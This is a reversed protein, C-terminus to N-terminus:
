MASKLREYCALVNGSAFVKTQLLKLTHRDPASAFLTKGKGLIVPNTIFRYEDILGLRTLQAVIMGSGFIAMDKGPLLKMKAIEEADISGRMTTNNWEPKEVTKSFVIKALANMKGAVTPDDKLADPKPWYGAMLDYTVRGFILTDVTDLFRIAVENFEGDVVHWDIEGNAGAFFGDVTLMEQVIIKRM